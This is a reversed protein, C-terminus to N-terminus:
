SQGQEVFFAASDSMLVNSLHPPLAQKNGIGHKRYEKEVALMAIYGRYAGKDTREAKCVITGIMVGDVMALFCLNPWKHIFYRYTFISYPESLEKEMMDMIGYMQRESEYPVYHVFTKTGDSREIPVSEIAERADQVVLRDLDM